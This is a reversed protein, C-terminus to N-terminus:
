LPPAPQSWPPACSLGKTPADPRVHSQSNDLVCNILGYMEAAPLGCLIEASVGAFDELGCTFHFGNLNVVEHSSQDPYLKMM